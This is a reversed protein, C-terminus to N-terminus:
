EDRIEIEEALVVRNDPVPLGTADVAPLREVTEPEYVGVALRYHGPPVGALSLVISDSVVEGEVWRSTPYRGKRPMADHQAVITETAPDFLHVFVKYDMEMQRLAQWYLELRLEEGERALDYGLLLIEGGFAVSLRRQMEPVTFRREPAIVEIAGVEFEGLEEGTLADSPALVLRYRGPPLDRRLRLRYHALILADRPWRSTPYSGALPKRWVQAVEGGEDKLRLSCTYDRRLSAVAAWKVTLLLNEGQELRTREVKAEAIALGQPFRHRIPYDTKVTPHVLAVKEVRATILPQLTRVDYLVVELSYDGPPTGEPLPLWRRDYVLEGPRWLSTPYFGYLPQADFSAITYGGADKLRVSTGYNALVQEAAQWVLDARLLEPSEQEAEAEVLVIGGQERAGGSGQEGAGRSGREGAGESRLRVLSLCLIDLPEGGESLAAIEGEADRLGVSVFYIGRVSEEPIELRHVTTAELESSQAKFKSSQAKFKSSQAEIPAEDQAIIYPVQFLHAAPLVLRVIAEPSKGIQSESIQSWYLTVTITEGARVEEASLQYGRLRVGNEFPVGRPNHHPYPMRKFGLTLDLPGQDPPRTTPSGAVHQDSIWFGIISVVLVVLALFKLKSSQPKLKSSQVLLGIITLAVALSLGEALARLPTRELRLVVQHSGQPVTLSIYGLGEVPKTEVRRGDVYGQWGPFYYTHFALSAQPSAIEVLWREETPRQALLKTGSLEGQVALPPPKQGGNLLVASTFPSPEVWRPQYENRSTSGVYATFYEYLAVQERTVEDIVLYEVPLDLMATALLALGLAGAVIGRWARGSPLRALHGIILSLPLAQVALLRWPFQVFPLLPITDWLPRSLPTILFTVGALMLLLFTSDLAKRLNSQPGTQSWLYADRQKTPNLRRLASKTWWILISAAGALALVAQVTGMAYPSAERRYDFLIKRQILDASRFHGSYHLYGSTMRELHVWKGELLAPLWFWASLALGLIIGVLAVLLFDIAARVEKRNIPYQINSIPPPIALCLAYLIVFPSFVLASINHSLILGGYALSLFTTNILSPKQRLRWLALLILPYLAYAYFESLADGRVYVQILHFPTYTYALATLLAAAKSAWLHRALLYAFVTAAVFGLIQTLKLSWIYGFGLLNLLGAVYYPLAAYFNFFPYGLGYAADPMWRVPFVGNRLNVVLQHLRVLLFASDGTNIVGPELLIPLYAFLGLLIPALWFPLRQPITKPWSKHENL